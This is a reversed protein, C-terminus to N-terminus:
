VIATRGYNTHQIFEGFGGNWGNEDAEAYSMMREVGTSDAWLVMGSDMPVTVTNNDPKQSKKEARQRNRMVVPLWKDFSWYGNESALEQPGIPINKSKVLGQDDITEITEKLNEFTMGDLDGMVNLAKVNNPTLRVRTARIIEYWERVQGGLLTLQPKLQATAPITRKGRAVVQSTTNDQKPALKASAQPSSGRSTSLEAEVIAQTESALPTRTRARDAPNIHGAQSHGNIDGITAAQQQAPATGCAAGAAYQPHEGVHGSGSDPHALSIRIDGTANNTHGNIDRKEQSASFDPHYPAPTPLERDDVNGTGEQKERTDKKPTNRSTDKESRYSSEESGPSSEEYSPSSEESSATSEEGPASTEPPSSEEGPATNDGAMKLSYSKKVRALDSSDIECILYGHEVAKKLGDIVSHNSMGTGNDMRTGNAYRRGNMFEDVSIAKPKGYEHFGWSHRIVYIIVKLEAMNTIKAIIDTIANPMSFFNKTPTPFGDFTM